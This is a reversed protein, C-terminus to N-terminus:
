VDVLDPVVPLAATTPYAPRGLIETENPNVFYVDYNTSALLYTAVFNSARQPKSSAGLVAVTRTRRVIALRERADPNTWEGNGPESM